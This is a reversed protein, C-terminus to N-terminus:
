WGEAVRGVPEDANVNRVRSVTSGRRWWWAPEIADALSTTAATSAALSTAVAFATAVAITSRM